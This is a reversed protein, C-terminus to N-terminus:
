PDPPGSSSTAPAGTLRSIRGARPTVRYACRLAGSLQHEVREVEVDRGLVEKFLELESRCFGQCARAAACIPCHNEILLWADGQKRVAAM